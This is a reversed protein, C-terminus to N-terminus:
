TDSEVGNNESWWGALWDIRARTGMAHPCISRPLGARNAAEGKRRAPFDQTADDDRAGLAQWPANAASWRGSVESM